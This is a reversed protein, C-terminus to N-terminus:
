GGGAQAIWGWGGLGMALCGHVSVEGIRAHGEGKSGQTEGMMEAFRVIAEGGTGGEM